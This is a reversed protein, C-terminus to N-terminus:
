WYPLGRDPRFVEHSTGPAPPKPAIRVVLDLADITPADALYGGFVGVATVRCLFYPRRNVEAVRRLVRQLLREARTRSLPPRIRARALAEGQRTRCWRLEDPRDPDRRVYGALHLRNLIRHAEEADVRFTAMVSPLNRSLPGFQRLLQRVDLTSWPGIRTARDRPM